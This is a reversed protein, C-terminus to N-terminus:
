HVLNFVYVDRLYVRDNFSFPKDVIAHSAVDDWDKKPKSFFNEGILGAETQATSRAGRTVFTSLYHIPCRHSSITTPVLFWGNCLEM